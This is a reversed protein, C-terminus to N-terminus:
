SILQNITDATLCDFDLDGLGIMAALEEVSHRQGTNWLDILTEGARGSAYWRSGFQTKLHDRMQVEFAAARLYSAPHFNDSVDSFAETEDFRVRVATTMLEAYRPGAGNSLKGAHFETEYILKAAQRRVAMLRLVALAHRFEANEVFGFTGALWAPEHLLNEFLMGWAEGVATDGGLRFEPYLNRSTWAFHQARGAARLFEGYNSQGGTFNVVLKIEDPVEIPSCFAQPQKNPRTTSDIEVNSQKEIDFGPAVFLDRYTRPMQESGFFADFHAYRQLWGLDAATAQDISVGAERVLLPALSSVYRNETKALIQEAQVMLKECDVGRLERRITIYNEFGLEQAGEHLTRFREARMDQAGQIVDARRAYLDHRRKPDAENALLDASQHFSVQEGNWTIQAEAEYYEIEESVDRARSVLNNEIAFAIL